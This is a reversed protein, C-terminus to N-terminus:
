WMERPTGRINATNQQQEPDEGFGGRAAAPPPLLARPCSQEGGEGQYAHHDEGAVDPTDVGRSSPAAKDSVSPDTSLSTSACSVLTASRSSARSDFGAGDRGWAPWAGLEM